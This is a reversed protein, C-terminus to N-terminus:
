TQAEDSGRRIPPLDGLEDEFDQPSLVRLNEDEPVEPDLGDEAPRERADEEDYESTIAHRVGRSGAPEALPDLVQGPAEPETLAEELGESINRNEEEKETSMM